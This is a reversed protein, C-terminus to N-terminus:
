EPRCERPASPCFSPPRPALRCGGGGGERRACSAAGGLAVIVPEEGDSVGEIIDRLAMVLERCEM